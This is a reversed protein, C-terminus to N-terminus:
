RRAQARLTSDVWPTSVKPLASWREGLARIANAMEQWSLVANTSDEPAPIARAADRALNLDAETFGANLAVAWDDSSWGLEARRRDAASEEVTISAEADIDGALADVDAAIRLAIEGAERKLHTLARAQRAAWVRDGAAVAGGHRDMAILAARLYGNGATLDRSLANLRDVEGSSVGDGQQLMPPTPISPRTFERFDARPPDGSLAKSAAGWTDFNFDLIKGFLAAPIAFGIGASGIPGKIHKGLASKGYGIAKRARDAANDGSGRLSSGLRQGGGGPMGVGGGSGFGGSGGGGWGGGSRQASMLSVFRYPSAQDASARSVAGATAWDAVASAWARYLFELAQPDIISAILETLSEVDRSRPGSRRTSPVLRTAAAVADRASRATHRLQLPVQAAGVPIFTAETLTSGAYVARFVAGDEGAVEILRDQADRNAEFVEPVYLQMKMVTYDNPSMRLFYGAPHFSWRGSPIERQHSRPAPVNDLVSLREIEEYTAGGPNAFAARIRNEAELVRQSYGDLRGIIDNLWDAPLVDLASGDISAIQSRTLLREAARQPGEELSSVPSKAVIAWLLLQIDRQGVEPAQAARNLITTVLDAKPGKLPAWAYGDGGRPRSTGPQLCYSQLEGEWLGPVLTVGDDLGQPLELLPSATLPNFPDLFPVETTADNMSTTIADRGLLDNLSPLRGLNPLHTPIGPLRIQANVLGGGSM